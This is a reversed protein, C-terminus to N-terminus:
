LDFDKINLEIEENGLKQQFLIWKLNIPFESTKKFMNRFTFFVRM